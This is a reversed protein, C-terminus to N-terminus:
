YIPPQWEQVALDLLSSRRARASRLPDLFLGAKKLARILSLVNSVSLNTVNLYLRNGRSVLLCNMLGLFVRLKM